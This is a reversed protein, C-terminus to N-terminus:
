DNWFWIKRGSGLKFQIFKCFIGNVKMIPKWLGCGHHVRVGKFEWLTVERFRTVVVKRWLSEKEKDFRWHWKALTVRNHEKISRVGLGGCGMPRCISKWGVLYYRHHNDM